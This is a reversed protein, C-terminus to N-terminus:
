SLDNEAMDMAVARVEEYSDTDFDPNGEFKKILINEIMLEIHHSYDPDKLVDEMGSKTFKKEVLVEGTKEDSVTLTKWAGAGEVSYTKGDVTVDDSSRLLDTVQEHEKVGVGFHIEFQCTRFPPAVKNKIIQSLYEIANLM